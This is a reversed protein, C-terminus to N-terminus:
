QSFEEPAQSDRSLHFLAQWLSTYASPQPQPQPQATLQPLDPPPTLVTPAKAAPQGPHAQQQAVQTPMAKVPPTKAPAGGKTKAKSLPGLPQTLGLSADLATQPSQPTAAVQGTAAQPPDPQQTQVAEATVSVETTTPQTTLDQVDVAASSQGQSSLSQVPVADTIDAWSQVVASSAAADSQVPQPDSDVDPDVYWSATGLGTDIVLQRGHAAQVVVEESLIIMTQLRGRAAPPLNSLAEVVLDGDQSIVDILSQEMAQVQDVWSLDDSM